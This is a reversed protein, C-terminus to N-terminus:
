PQAATLTEDPAPATCAAFEPGSLYLFSPSDKSPHSTARELSCGRSDIRGAQATREELSEWDLQYAGGRHRIAPPNDLARAAFKLLAAAAAAKTPAAIHHTPAYAPELAGADTVRWLKQKM